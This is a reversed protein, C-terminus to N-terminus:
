GGRAPTPRREDLRARTLEDVKERLARTLPHFDTERRGYALNFSFDFDPPNKGVLHQLMTELKDFAKALRAEETRGEAYEDWLSLLDGALASPLPACLSQFDRRERERRRDGSKQAPAPVDGSIAEGLDHVVCLKLLKEVDIGPLDRGFLVVLLCLGWSHEATSEARGTRTRGSRLTDKLQEAAQLFALIGSLRGHDITAPDDSDTKHTM